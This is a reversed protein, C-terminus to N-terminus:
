GRGCLVPRALGCDSCRRLEVNGPQILCPAHPDAPCARAHPDAPSARAHSCNAVTQLRRSHQMFFCPDLCLATCGICVCQCRMVLPVRVKVSEALAAVSELDLNNTPEDLFLVHPRPISYTLPLHHLLPCSRHPHPHPHHFPILIGCVATAVVLITYPM